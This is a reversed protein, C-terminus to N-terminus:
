DKIQTSGNKDSSSYYSLHFDAPSGLFKREGPKAGTSRTFHQNERKLTWPHTNAIELENKRSIKFINFGFAALRKLKVHLINAEFAKTLGKKGGRRLSLQVNITRLERAYM